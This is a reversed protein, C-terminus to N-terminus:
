RRGGKKQQKKVRKCAPCTPGSFWAKGKVDRSPIRLGCLTTLDGSWWSRQGSHIEYGSM